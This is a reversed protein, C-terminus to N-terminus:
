RSFGPPQQGPNTQFRLEVTARVLKGAPLALPHRDCPGDGPCRRDNKRILWRGAEIRLRAQLDSAEKAVHGLLVAMRPNHHGMVVPNEVERIADHSDFVPLDM